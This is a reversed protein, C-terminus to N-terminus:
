DSPAVTEYLQVTRDAYDKWTFRSAWKTGVATREAWTQPKSQCEEILHLIAETWREVDAVPCFTAAPGGIERLPPIESLVVPTGCALSELVPLGFGESESPLLTIVARRYVAALVDPTVFPLVRVADTPLALDNILKRQYPTFAGGVRLIRVSPVVRRLAAAVRILVDIRKRPITSGVHAIEPRTRVPPGLIGRVEAEARPDPRTTFIDAVGNCNVSLREAPAIGYRLM